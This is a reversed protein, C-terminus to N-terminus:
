FFYWSFVFINRDCMDLLTQYYFKIVMNNVSQLLLYYLPKSDIIESRVNTKRICCICIKNCVSQLEITMWLQISKNRKTVKSYYKYMPVKLYYYYFFTQYLMYYQLLYLCFIYRYIPFYIIIKFSTEYM